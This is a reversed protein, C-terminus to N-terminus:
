KTRDNSPSFERWCFARIWYLELLSHRARADGIPSTRRPRSSWSMQLFNVWDMHRFCLNRSPKHFLECLPLMALFHKSSFARKKCSIGAHTLLFHSRFSALRRDYARIKQLFGLDLDRPLFRLAAELISCILCVCVLLIGASDSRWVIPTRSPSIGLLSPSIFPAADTRGDSVGLSFAYTSIGSSWSVRVFLLM